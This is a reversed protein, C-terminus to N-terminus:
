FLIPIGVDASASRKTREKQFLGSAQKVTLFHFYPFVQALPCLAFKARKTPLVLLHIYGFSKSATTAKKNRRKLLLLFYRLGKTDKLAFCKEM